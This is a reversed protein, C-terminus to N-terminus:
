PFYWKLCDTLRLSERTREDVTPRREEVLFHLLRTEATDPQL